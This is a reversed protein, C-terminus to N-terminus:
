NSSIKCVDEEMSYGQVELFSSYQEPALLRTGATDLCIFIATLLDAMMQTPQTGDFLPQWNGLESITSAQQPSQIIRPSEITLIPSVHTPNQAPITTQARVPSYITRKTHVQAPPSLNTPTPVIGSSPSTTSSPSDGEARPMLGSREELSIKHKATHTKNFRKVVFCNACLDFDECELCHIRAKLVPIDDWCGDCVYPPM